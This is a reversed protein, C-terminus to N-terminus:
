LWFGKEKGEGAELIECMSQMIGGIIIPQARRVNDNRQNDSKQRGREM